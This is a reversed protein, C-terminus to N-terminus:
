YSWSGWAVIVAVIMVSLLENGLKHRKEGANGTAPETLASVRLGFGKM